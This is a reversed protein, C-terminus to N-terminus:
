PQAILMRLFCNGSSRPIKAERTQVTGTTSILTDAFGSPAGVEGPAKWHTLDSCAQATFTLDTLATDRQYQLVFHTATTQAVPMRPAPDNGVIPASGFAYELLNSRGDHDADAVPANAISNVALNNALEIESAWRAFTRTITSNGASVTATISNVSGGTNSVLVWYKYTGRALVPTTYSAGTAIPNSTNGATGAYWQYSLSTGSAIVTLTTSTNKTITPSVPQFLIVPLVSIVLTGSASGQYNPDNITGVVTYSGANTPATASGNYTFNVTLNSVPSTTATANRQSGNYSAALSGLTVTAAAKSIVLTGSASGQYNTDNITGVVTYSGANTPATASGNYTFNVTLNSVPSTTATANRQSGNYTAALSGLTVSAPAKSIVLTGSASGQYNTDNITGVVTYSGANTPATSSGNYTYNVTLGAPSTTATASKPSGNYTAAPCNLTVTAVTKTSVTLTQYSAPYDRESIVPTVSMLYTGTGPTFSGNTGSLSQCENNCLTSVGTFTIADIFWGVLDGSYGEYFGGGAAYSLLFRVRFAKGAMATLTASRLTFSAEADSNTGTQSYVDLWETSGEVKAQVKCQESSTAYRVRSQFSIAPTSQGYYLPNLQISQSAGPSITNELHFAATGQQKITTNLVSYTGTTTTTINSINECNEAAVDTFNWRNWKYATAGGIATFTLTHPIGAAASAPSTITPPAYTLQLDAKANKATAVVLNASQNMNLRSFTVTRTTATTPIPVVWGGGIATNCYQTIDAGSVNVTLGSIGEGIDYFNNANLDYYAVGTALAPNAASAGFDQTVLLPGVAGNTGLTVGVGIERYLPSHINARHGRGDQMGDTGLGWDVEFGAHGYWVSNATAYINEGASSYVYGADTMRTFPTNTPSENHAQTATALMWASHSRAATTLCANPALPPQVPILDFEAKMVNLNVTWYPAYNYASLVAPDTTTALRLGEGHPDARARNILEIFLQEEAKPNGFDYPTLGLCPVTLAALSGLWLLWRSHPLSFQPKSRDHMSTM